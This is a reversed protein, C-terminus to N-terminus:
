TERRGCLRTRLLNLQNLVVVKGSLDRREVEAISTEVLQVAREPQGSLFLLEAATHPSGGNEVCYAAADQLSNIRELFPIGVLAAGEYFERMERECREPDDLLRFGLSSRPWGSLNWDQCVAILRDAPKAGWAREYLIVYSKSEVSGRPRSSRAGWIM